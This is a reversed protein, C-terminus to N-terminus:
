SARFASFYNFTRRTKVIDEAILVDNGPYHRLLATPVVTSCCNGPQPRQRFPTQGNRISHTEIILCTSQEVRRRRRGKSSTTLPIERASVDQIDQADQM